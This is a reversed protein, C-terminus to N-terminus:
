REEEEDEKEVEAEAEVFYKANREKIIAESHYQGTRTDIVNTLRIM